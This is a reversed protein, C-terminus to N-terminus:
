YTPPPKFLYGVTSVLIKIDGRLTIRAAYQNDYVAKASETMGDYARVQALGTLGPRAAHAPGQAREDILTSQTPLAPRPGVLTMDGRLINFLQPLEDVNLRRIVTGVKTVTATGMGASPAVKTGSPMSRFKLVTFVRGGQGVRSQRYIVPAGDEIRIASATVLLVPGLLVTAVGSLLLDLM